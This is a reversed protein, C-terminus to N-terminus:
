APTERYGSLDHRAIINGARVYLRPVRAMIGALVEYSITGSLRAVEDATIEADGQRGILTVEDDIDVESMKTIDLMLMDMAVRGILPVRKGRVLAVGQNSLSRHLGDAYGAMALAVRGPRDATWTRGYGVTEGEHLESVRAIRSRLSLVPRLPADHSVEGPYYGYVGIGSRVLALRLDPLDLLAGTSSVHHLPVWPLRDAAARFAAYQEYTFTKDGEDVSALHTSLGEVVVGPLSRLSEALAVAEEPLVGFRNLGTEVKVHVIADRGVVQAATSLAQGMALSGATVRLDSEVLRPALAIASSGLVLIPATIGARRLEEGEDLDVVGLGWAGADISARAIPVAGHGYANGKVVVLLRADGAQRKLVRVNAVVLDLDVEAWVRLGERFAIERPSVPAENSIPGELNLPASM